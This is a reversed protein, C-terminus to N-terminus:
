SKIATSQLHRLSIDIYKPSSFMSQKRGSWENLKNSIVQKDFSKENSAIFDISSLLELAFDSYFGNLFNTTDTAIRSLESKNEIYSKVESYGDAILTLPEFPKKNMDSYRM